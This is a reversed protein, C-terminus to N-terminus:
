ASKLWKFIKVAYLVKDLVFGLLRLTLVYLSVVRRVLSNLTGVGYVCFLMVADPVRATQQNPQPAHDLERRM